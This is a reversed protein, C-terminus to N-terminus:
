PKLHRGGDRYSRLQSKLSGQGDGYSRLQPKLGRGM